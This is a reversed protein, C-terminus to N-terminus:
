PGCWYLYTVNVTNEKGLEDNDLDFTL